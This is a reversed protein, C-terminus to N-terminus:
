PAPTTPETHFLYIGPVDEFVVSDSSSIQVEFSMDVTKNSGISSSYTESTLTLGTLYLTTLSYNSSGTDPVTAIEIQIDGGVNNVIAKLTKENMENLISSISITATTPFDQSMAYPKVSGLGQMPTAGVPISINFNQLHISNDVGLVNALSPDSAWNKFSMKIGGKPIAAPALLNPDGFNPQGFTLKGSGFENVVEYINTGVTDV